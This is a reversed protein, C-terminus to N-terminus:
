ADAPAGSEWRFDNEYFNEILDCDTVLAYDDLLVDDNVDIANFRVLTQLFNQLTIKAYDEAHASAAFFLCFIFVTLRLIMNVGSDSRLKIIPSSELCNNVDLGAQSLESEAHRVIKRM